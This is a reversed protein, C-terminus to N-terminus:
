GQPSKPMIINTAAIGRGEITLTSPLTNAHSTQAHTRTHSTTMAITSNTLFLTEEPVHASRLLFAPHSKRVSVFEFSIWPEWTLFEPKSLLSFTSRAGVPNSPTRTRLIQTQSNRSSMVVESKPKPLPAASTLTVETSSERSVVRGGERRRVFRHVVMEHNVLSREGAVLQLSLLLVSSQRPRRFLLPLLPLPGAAAHATVRKGSAGLEAAKVAVTTM